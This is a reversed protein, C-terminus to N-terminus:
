ITVPNDQCSSVKTPTKAPRRPGSDRTRLHEQADPQQGGILAQFAPEQADGDHGDVAQAGGCAAARARNRKPDLHISPGQLQFHAVATLRTPPHPPFSQGWLVIRLLTRLRRINMPKQM